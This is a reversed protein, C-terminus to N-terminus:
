GQTCVCGCCGGAGVCCDQACLLAYVEHVLCGWWLRKPAPVAVVVERVLMIKHGM